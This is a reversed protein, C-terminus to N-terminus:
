ECNYAATLDPASLSLMLFKSAHVQATRSQNALFPISRLESLDSTSSIAVGDTASVNASPDPTATAPEFIVKETFNFLRPTVSSLVSENSSCTRFMILALLKWILAKRWMQGRSSLDTAFVMAQLMTLVRM